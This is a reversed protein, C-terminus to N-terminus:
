GIFFAYDGQRIIFDNSVDFYLRWLFSAEEGRPTIFVPIYGRGYTKLAQALEDSNPDFFMKVCGIYGMGEDKNVVINDLNQFAYEEVYGDVIDVMESNGYVAEAEEITYYILQPTAAILPSFYDLLYQRANDFQQLKMYEESNIIDDYKSTFDPSITYNRDIEQMPYKQLSIFGGKDDSVYEIGNLTLIGDDYSFNGNEESFTSTIASYTGDIHTLGYFHYGLSTGYVIFWYTENFTDILFRKDRIESTEGSIKEAEDLWHLATEADCNEIAENAQSIFTDYDSSTHEGSTNLSFEHTNVSVPITTGYENAQLTIETDPGTIKTRSPIGKETQFVASVIIEAFGPGVATIIGSSDVTVVNPNSSRFTYNGNAFNSSIGLSLIDANEGPSLPPLANDVEITPALATVECVDSYDIGEYSYSAVITGSTSIIQDVNINDTSVLGSSSVFIMEPENTSAGTNCTWTVQVGDPVGSTNLQYTNGLFITIANDSLSLSPEFLSSDTDNPINLDAQKEEIAAKDVDDEIVELAQSLVERAMELDGMEAYTDALGIYADPKKPEIEIAIQFAIIAEEYNGESLYRVGLEYQKQWSTADRDTRGCACMTLLIVVVLVVSFMRKM